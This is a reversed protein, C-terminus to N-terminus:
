HQATTSSLNHSSMSYDQTSHEATTNSLNHRSMSYDHTSHEATTCSLNHRSMNNDQTSHEKRIIAVPRLQECKSNNNSTLPHDRNASEAALFQTGRMNIHDRIIEVQTEYHISPKNAYNTHLRRCHNM